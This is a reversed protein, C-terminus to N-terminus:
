SVVVGTVGGIDPAWVLDPDLVTAALSSAFTIPTVGVTGSAASTSVLTRGGFTAGTLIPVAADVVEDWTDMDTARTWAGGVGPSVEAVAVWIGNQAPNTQARVLVRNGAVIAVGDIVQEGVLTINGTTAAVVVAKAVASTDVVQRGTAAIRLAYTGPPVSSTQLRVRGGGVGTLYTRAHFVERTWPGSSGARYDVVYYLWPQAPDLEDFEVNIENGAGADAATVNEPVPFYNPPTGEEEEPDWADIENPNVLTWDLTVRANALDIRVKSIEIVANALDTILRSRVGVWREGLAKLGYLGTVLQGRSTAQNRLLKRKSLRRGQSHSQVWTLELRESRVRGLEAISAEDRTSVGAVERWNSQPATYTFQVENIVSEDAVGTDITFGVIHDDNLVVGGAISRPDRFLGVKLRLTGDGGEALWGDCTSLIARIVEAPDTSLFAWGDSRYRPETSGDAKAVAEDCIDAEAMWEDIVPAIFTEYDLAPGRDEHTLYDLLQLVPNSSVGWTDPDDRDQAPDRPDWIPSLDGVISPKPLGRPYVAPVDGAGVNLCRLALSALGDGRHASSWLAPLASAVSTYATETALGQRTEIFVLDGTFAGYRNEDETVEGTHLAVVANTGPNVGVIDENLYHHVVGAIRGQHLAVVDISTFNSPDVEFLMYAGAVRSRGYGFPRPPIAQRIPQAFGAEGSKPVKPANAFAVAASVGLVAAAGVATAVTLGAFITTAGTGAAVVGATELGYFILAGVAEAM